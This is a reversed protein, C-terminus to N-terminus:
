HEGHAQDDDRQHSDHAQEDDRPTPATLPARQDKQPPNRNAAKRNHRARTAQTHSRTARRKQAKRIIAEFKIFILLLHFNTPTHAIATKYYNIAHGTHQRRTPPLHHM